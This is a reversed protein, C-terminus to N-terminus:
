LSGNVKVIKSRMRSISQSPELKSTCRIEPAKNIEFNQGRLLLRCIMDLDSVTLTHYLPLCLIRSAVLECVPMEVNEVYPLKALSPYFYRRCYIQAMELNAKAQQMLSESKFLIPFYAYNYDENNQIKQFKVDLNVLRNLYQESLYKRMKLIDNVHNLNCLGMAAHFECNKANIGQESFTDVGSYGFNRMLAMKKLLDPDKTFVAGGEITHFLKTSHFSTTSIDGYEFISRNKYQTGFCHAADYIIKLNYKDAIQQITDIACPNGYVHTALIASTKPTIAYEIKYPDINFSEPDIDVFVPKCGQWVISSTTAVFSFPTTIIEGSLNLAKIALQLAVTGNSVFLLHNIGLYEKLKLELTNVLPGNNTLWQRQWISKVYSKFEKEAPLFPKTVPIM